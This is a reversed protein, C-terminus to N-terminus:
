GSSDGLSLTVIDATEVRTRTCGVASNPTATFIMGMTLRNRPEDKNAPSDLGPSSLRLRPSFPCAYRSLQV